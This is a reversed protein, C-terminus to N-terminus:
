YNYNHARKWEAVEAATMSNPQGPKLTKGALATPVVVAKKGANGVGNKLPVAVVDKKETALEVKPVIAAFEPNDKVYQTAWDMVVKEREADKMDDIKDGHEKALHEALDARAHRWLKPKIVDKLADRLEGDAQDVQHSEEVEAARAEALEAKEEAVRAREELQQEKTLQAKRKEEAEDEFKKLNDLKTKLVAPDDTGFQEKLQAKNARAIRKALAESSMAIREGPKPEDDDGIVRPEAPKDGAATEAPKAAVAPAAVAPKEVPLVAPTEPKKEVVPAAAGEAVPTTM